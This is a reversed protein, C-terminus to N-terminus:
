IETTKGSGNLEGRVNLILDDMGESILEQLTIGKKKCLENLLNVEEEKFAITFLKNKNRLDFISYNTIKTLVQNILESRKIGTAICYNDIRDITNSSIRSSIIEKRSRELMEFVETYYVSLKYIYM